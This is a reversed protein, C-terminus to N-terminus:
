PWRRWWSPRPSRRLLLLLNTYRPRDETISLLAAAGGRGDRTMEELRAPSVMTIAADAAALLGAIPVLAAAVVLLLVDTSSV